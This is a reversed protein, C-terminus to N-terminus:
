QQKKVKKKTSFIRVMENVATESAVVMRLAQEQLYPMKARRFQSDIESLSKSEKIRNRLEEDIM